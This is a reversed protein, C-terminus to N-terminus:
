FWRSSSYPASVLTFLLRSSVTCLPRASPASSLWSIASSTSNEWSAHFNACGLGPLAAHFLEYRPPSHHYEACSASALMLFSISGTGSAMSPHGSGPRYVTAMPFTTPPNGSTSHRTVTKSQISCPPWYIPVYSPLLCMYQSSLSYAQRETARTLLSTHTQAQAKAQFLYQHHEPQVFGVM